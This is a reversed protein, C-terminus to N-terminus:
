NAAAIRLRLDDAAPHGAHVAAAESIDALWLHKRASRLGPLEDLVAHATGLGADRDGVRLQAAAVAARDSIASRRGLTRDALSVAGREIVPEANRRHQPWRSARAYVMLWGRGAARQATEGARLSAWVPVAAGDAAALAEDARALANVMTRADGRVAAALAVNAHLEAVTGPYCEDPDTTLGLESVRPASVVDRHLGARDIQMLVEAVLGPEDAERALMLARAQHRRAEAHRGADNAAWGVDAYLEGLAIKLERGTVEDYRCHLMGEAWGAFGRAADVTAGGGWRKDLARLQAAMARVQAVDRAGIRASDPAAGFPAPPLWRRLGAAGGGTAVVSVAALFERREMADDGRESGAPGAHAACEACDSLGMLVRPVQLGDAIRVLVDYSHVKRGHIIGSVEPQSQGTLSAIQQQSWGMKQLWRYLGTIDREALIPRVEARWWWAPDPVAPLVPITNV